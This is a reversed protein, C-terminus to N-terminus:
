ECRRRPSTPFRSPHRDGAPGFLVMTSTAHSRSRTWANGGILERPDHLGEEGGLGASQPQSKGDRSGDDLSVLAFQAHLALYTLSAGEEDAKGAAALWRVRRRRFGM